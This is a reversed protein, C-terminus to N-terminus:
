IYNNITDRVIQPEFKLYKVNKINKLINDANRRKEYTSFERFLNCKKTWQLGVSMDKCDPTGFLAHNTLLQFNTTTFFTWYM